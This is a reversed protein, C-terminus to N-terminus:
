FLATPKSPPKCVGAKVCTETRMPVRCVHYCGARVHLSPEHWSLRRYGSGRRVGVQLFPRGGLGARM